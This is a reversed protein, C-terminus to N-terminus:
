DTRSDFELAPSSCRLRIFGVLGLEERIRRNSSNNEGRAFTDQGINMDGSFPPGQGDLVGRHKVRRIVAFQKVHLCDNSSGAVEDPSTTNNACYARKEVAGAARNEVAEYAQRLPRMRM